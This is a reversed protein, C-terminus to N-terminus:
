CGCNQRAAYSIPVFAFGRERAAPLWARLASLTMPRPHAIAIAVGRERAVQELRALEHAIRDPTMEADIFVDRMAHPVELLAALHNGQTTAATRSDLFMLGRRKLEALVVVMSETDSTFRSGMHNNIGVYAGFRALGAGLRDLNEAGTAAVRLGYAGLRYGPAIPEMPVHVMVEHGARRAYRALWPADPGDPLFSLTMQEGLALVDDVERASAGLDDIVIAIAPQGPEVKAAVAYRRWPAEPVLVGPVRLAASAIQLGSPYGSPEDLDQVDAETDRPGFPESARLPGANLAMVFAVALGLSLRLPWGARTRAIRGRRRRSRARGSQM